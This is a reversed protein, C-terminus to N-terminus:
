CEGDNFVVDTATKDVGSPYQLAVSGLQRTLIHRAFASKCFSGNLQTQFPVSPRLCWSVEVVNTRDLCDICNVRFVGKQQSMIRDNSVWLYRGM